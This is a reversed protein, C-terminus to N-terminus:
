RAARPAQAAATAEDDAAVKDGDDDDDDDADDDDAEDDLATDKVDNVIAEVVGGVDTKLLKEVSSSVLTGM